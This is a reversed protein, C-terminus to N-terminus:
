GIILAPNYTLYWEGDYKVVDFSSYSYERNENDNFVVKVIVTYGEDFDIDKSTDATYSSKYYEIHDQTLPEYDLYFVSVDIDESSESDFESFATQLEEKSYDSKYEPLFVSNFAEDDFETVGKIYNDIPKEYPKNSKNDDSKSFIVCCLGIIVGILVVILSIIIIATVKSAKHKPYEPSIGTNEKYEPKVDPVTESIINNAQNQVEPTQENIDSKTEIQTGCVPCLTQGDELVCGCNKCINSM